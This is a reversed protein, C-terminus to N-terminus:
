SGRRLAHLRLPRRPPRERRAREAAHPRPLARQLTGRAVRGRAVAAITAFSALMLAHWEWWSARWNRAWAIVVMAEALLAFAFAVALAFRAGRRRYLALYGGAAVAYLGVGVAALTVQWGDLQEAALPDALPPLQALSLVAWLAVALALAAVIAPGAALIRAATRPSAEFASTAAFAAALVLGVPTALEFGANKGVLVGPTALAHLGLFAASSLFALSILFLRADRRRRAAASVAFGLGVSALAASLVLWFHAPHNEWRGDAGPLALVAGWVAAPVATGVAAWAVLREPRGADSAAVPGLTM